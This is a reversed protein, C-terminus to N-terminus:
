SLIHFQESPNPFFIDASFTYTLLKCLGLFSPLHQFVRHCENKFVHWKESRLSDSLSHCCDTQTHKLSFSHCLLTFIYFSLLSLRWLASMSQNKASFLNVYYLIYYKYPLDISCM